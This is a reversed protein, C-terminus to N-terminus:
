PKKKKDLFAKMAIKQEEGTFLASFLERERSIGEQQSVQSSLVLAAKAAVLACRPMGAIKKGLALAEELLNERPVVQDALGITEAQVARVQEGTYIMKRARGPGIRRALRQTAGFGPIVGIAVEPQAFVANDAALIMDCALALECGGGLAYGNVAAIVPLSMCELRDLVQSGLLSFARATDEDMPQMEAIDAGAVFAKSGEGTLVLCGIGGDQEASNIAQALENITQRNLANMQQARTITILAVGGHKELIVNAM